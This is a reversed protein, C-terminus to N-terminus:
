QQTTTQVDSVTTIQCKGNEPASLVARVIMKCNNDVREILDLFRKSTMSLASTADLALKDAKDPAVSM